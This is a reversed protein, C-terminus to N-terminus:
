IPPPLVTVNSATGNTKFDVTYSGSSGAVGAPWQYNRMALTVWDMVMFRPWKLRLLAARIFVFMM